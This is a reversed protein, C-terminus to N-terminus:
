APSRPPAAAGAPPRRRARRRRRARDRTRRPSKRSPPVYGSTASTTSSPQPQACGPGPLATSSARVGTNSRRQRSSRRVRRELCGALRDAERVPLHAVGLDAMQRDAGPPHEELVQHADVSRDAVAGEELVVASTPAKRRAFSRPQSTWRSPRTEYPPTWEWMSWRRASSSSALRCPIASRVHIWANVSPRSTEGCAATRSRRSSGGLPDRGDDAAVVRHVAVLAPVPGLPREGRDHDPLALVLAGPRRAPSGVVGADGVLEDLRDHTSSRGRSRGPSSAAIKKLKRGSRPRWSELPQELRAVVQRRHRDVAVVEVARDREGLLVHRLREGLHEGLAAQALQVHGLGLLVRVHGVEEVAADLRLPRPLRPM